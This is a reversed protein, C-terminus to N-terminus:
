EDFSLIEQVNYKSNQFVYQVAARTPVYILLPARTNASLKLETPSRHVSVVLLLTLNDMDEVGVDRAAKELDAREILVNDLPLPLTIFSVSHDNLSQLLKFRELKPSPFNTLVYEFNGAIGLLGQPFIIPNDTSVEVEGFRTELKITNESESAESTLNVAEPGTNQQQTVTQLM